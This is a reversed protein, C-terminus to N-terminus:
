NPRNRRKALLIAGAMVAADDCDGQYRGSTMRDNVMREPTRILENEGDPVYQWFRRLYSDIEEAPMWNLARLEQNSALVVSKMIALTARTGAENRPIWRHELM